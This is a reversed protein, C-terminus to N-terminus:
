VSPSVSCGATEIRRAFAAVLTNGEEDYWVGSCADAPSNVAMEMKCSAEAILTNTNKPRLQLRGLSAGRVIYRSCNQYWIDAKYEATTQFKKQAQNKTKDPHSPLGATLHDINPKPVNAEQVWFGWTLRYLVSFPPGVEPKIVPAGKKRAVGALGVPQVQIPTTGNSSQTVRLIQALLVLWRHSKVLRVLKRIKENRQLSRAANPLKQSQQGGWVLLELQSLLVPITM